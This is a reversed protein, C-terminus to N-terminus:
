NQAKIKEQVWEPYSSAFYPGSVAKAGKESWSFLMWAYPKSKYKDPLPPLNETNKVMNQIFLVERDQGEKKSFFHSDTIKGDEALKLAAYVSGKSKPARWNKFFVDRFKSDFSNPETSVASNDVQSGNAKATSKKRDPNIGFSSSYSGNKDKTKSKWYDKYVKWNGDEKVIILEGTMTFNGQAKLAQKDAPLSAPELKYEVREPGAKKSLIKVKGPQEEQMMELMLKDVNMDRPAEKKMKDMEALQEKRYFPLLTELSKAKKVTAYYHHLFKDPDKISAKSEKTSDTSKAMAAGASILNIAPSAMTALVLLSVLQSKYPRRIFM